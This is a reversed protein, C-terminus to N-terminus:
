KDDPVEEFDADEIEQGNDAIIREKEENVKRMKRISYKNLIDTVGYFIATIGFLILVSEAVTFPDFLVVIGAILILVPFLYRVPSVPGWQRATFLTVFEGIAAVVLIFGLLFMFVKEFTTPLCLLLLGLLISGVGSMPAFSQSREERYKSSLVFAIIGTILFIVGIFMIIYRLATGPWIVLVLGLIIALVSRFLSGKFNTSTYVIQM